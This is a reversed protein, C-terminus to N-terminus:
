YKIDAMMPGVAFRWKFIVNQQHASPPGSKTNNPDEIRAEGVLNIFTTLTPGERVFFETDACTSHFILM